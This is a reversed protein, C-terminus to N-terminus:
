ILVIVRGCEAGRTGSETGGATPAPVSSDGVMGATMRFSDRNLKATMRFSGRNLKATMRLPGREAPPAFFGRRFTSYLLM